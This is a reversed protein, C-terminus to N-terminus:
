AAARWRCGICGADKKGVMDDTSYECAQSMRFPVDVLRPTREVALLEGVQVARHTYGDQVTMEPKFPARNFCANM